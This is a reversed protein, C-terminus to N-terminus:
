KNFQEALAEKLSKPESSSTGGGAPTAPPQGVMKKQSKFEGYESDITAIDFGEMKGDESIKIDDLNVGKLMLKIVSDKEYGNKKLEEKIKSIKNEKVKGNEIDAVYKEHKNKIEEYKAKFDESGEGNKIKAELDDVKTQLEDNQGVKKNYQTKSVFDKHIEAKIAESIGSRLEEAVGFGALIKLLDM